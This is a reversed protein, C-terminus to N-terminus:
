LDDGCRHALPALAEGAALIDVAEGAWRGRALSSAGTLRGVTERLQRAVGGGGGAGDGAPPWPGTLRLERVIDRVGPRRSLRDHSGKQYPLGARNLAQLRPPPHAAPRSLVSVYA